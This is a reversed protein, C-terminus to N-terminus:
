ASALEYDRDMSNRLATISETGELEHFSVTSNLQYLRYSYTNDLDTQSRTYQNDVEDKTTTREFADRTNRAL